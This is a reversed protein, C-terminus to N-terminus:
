MYEDYNPKYKKPLTCNVKKILYMCFTTNSICICADEEPNEKLRKSLTSHPIFIAKEIERLNKFFHVSKDGYIVMYKKGNVYTKFDKFNKLETTNECDTM